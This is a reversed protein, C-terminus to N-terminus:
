SYFILKKFKNLYEERNVTKGNIIKKKQSIHTPISYTNNPQFTLKRCNTDKRDFDVTSIHANLIIDNRWGRPFWTDKHMHMRKFFGFVNFIFYFYIFTYTIGNYSRTVIALSLVRPLTLM